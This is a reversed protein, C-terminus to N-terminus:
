PYLLKLNGSTNYYHVVYMTPSYGIQIMLMETYECQLICSTADRTKQNECNRVNAKIQNKNHVFTEPNYKLM